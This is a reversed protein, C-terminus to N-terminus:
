RGLKLIKGIYTVDARDMGDTRSPFQPKDTKKGTITRNPMVRKFVDRARRRDDTRNSGQTYDKM